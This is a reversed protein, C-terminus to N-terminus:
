RYAGLALIIGDARSLRTRVLDGIIEQPRSLIENRCTQRRAEHAYMPFDPGLNPGESVRRKLDSLTM